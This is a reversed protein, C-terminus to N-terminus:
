REKEVMTDMIEKLEEGTEIFYDQVPAPLEKWKICVLELDGGNQILEVLTTHLLEALEHTVSM